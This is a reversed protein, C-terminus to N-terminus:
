SRCSSLRLIQREHLSLHMLKLRDYRTLSMDCQAIYQLIHCKSITVVTDGLWSANMVRPRHNRQTALMHQDPYTDLSHSRVAPKCTRPVEYTCRFVGYPEAQQLM